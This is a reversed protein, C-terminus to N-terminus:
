YSYRFFILMAWKKLKLDQLPKQFDLVSIALIVIYEHMFHRFDHRCRRRDQPPKRM